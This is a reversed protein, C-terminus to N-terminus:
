IILGFESLDLQNSHFANVICKADLEFIVHTIRMIQVWRMVERFAYAEVEKPSLLGAFM